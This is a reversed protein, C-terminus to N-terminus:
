AALSAMIGGCGKVERFSARGIETVAAGSLGCECEGNVFHVEDGSIIFGPYATALPDLFGFVGRLDDGEVVELQENFIVPEIFPPIHFRGFDCRLTFANIETMSYGEIIRDEPLGFAEVMLALLHERSIREGTFSKWGGGFLIVSGAKAKFTEARALILESLEKYQHTTGFIFIKQGAATSTKLHEILAGYNQEKREVVIEQLARLQERDADTKPGRTTLRLVTPSLTTEYLFYHQRFLPALERSLTQNGTRGRSFDLFFADYERAGVHRNIQALSEPALLRCALVLLVRQLPTGIKRSVLLPALYASSAARFLAWNAPDRPVFSFNGSTGSSYVLRTGAEALRDIWADISEVGSVDVGTAGNFIQSLWVNMRTFNCEDLWQQNYSKFLDDPFMLRRKIPEIDDLSGLGEERALRQYAPIRELYHAHNALIAARRLERAQAPDFGQRLAWAQAQKILQRHLPSLQGTPHTAM